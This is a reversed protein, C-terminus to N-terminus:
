EVNPKNSESPELVEVNTWPELFGGSHGDAQEHSKAPLSAKDPELDQGKNDELADPMKTSTQIQFGETGSEQEMVQEEDTTHHQVTDRGQVSFSQGLSWGVHTVTKLSQCVHVGFGM